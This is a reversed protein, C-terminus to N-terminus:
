DEPPRTDQAGRVRSISEGRSTLISYDGKGYWSISPFIWEGEHTKHEIIHFKFRLGYVGWYDQLHQLACRDLDDEPFSRTRGSYDKSLTDFFAKKGTQVVPVTDLNYAGGDAIMQFCRGGKVMQYAGCRARADNNNAVVTNSLTFYPSCM